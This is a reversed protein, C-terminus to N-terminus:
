NWTIQQTEHWRTNNQILQTFAELLQELTHGDKPKLIVVLYTVSQKM